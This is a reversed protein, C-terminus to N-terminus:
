RGEEGGFIRELEEPSDLDTEEDVRYGRRRYEELRAFEDAVEAETQQLLEPDTTTEPQLRQVYQQEMEEVTANAKLCEIKVQRELATAIRDLVFLLEPEPM